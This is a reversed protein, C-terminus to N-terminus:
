HATRRLPRASIGLLSYLPCILATILPFLGVWGIWNWGSSAFWISVAYAVTSARRAVRDTMGINVTM